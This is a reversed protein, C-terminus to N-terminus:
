RSWCRVWEETGAPVWVPSAVSSHTPRASFRAMAPGLPVPFVWKTSANACLTMSSPMRTEQNVRANRAAAIPRADTSADIALVTARIVRASCIAISSIPM